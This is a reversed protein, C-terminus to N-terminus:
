FGGNGGGGGVFRCIVQCVKGGMFPLKVCTSMCQGFGDPPQGQENASVIGPAALVAAIVLAVGLRIIRPRM